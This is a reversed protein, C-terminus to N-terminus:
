AVSPHLQNQLGELATNGGRVRGEVFHDFSCPSHISGYLAWGEEVGEDFTFAQDFVGRANDDKVADRPRTM